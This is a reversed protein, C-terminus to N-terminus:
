KKYAFYIKLILLIISIIIDVGLAIITPLLVLLWSWSIVGCLKLIVFIITLANLIGIKM